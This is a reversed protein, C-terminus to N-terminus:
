SAKFEVDDLASKGVSIRELWLVNMPIGLEIGSAQIESKTV